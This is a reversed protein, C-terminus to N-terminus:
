DSPVSLWLSTKPVSATFTMREKKVPHELILVRAHLDINGDPNSRAAGYKLDGRIPFGIRALQCRIQHHRGTELAIELLEYREFRYRIKYSLAAKKADTVQADHAFSKNKQANRVLWHELRGENKQLGKPVLAWYTKAVNRQAFQENLRRLAKSTRAFVVVGSTPRDLRHVVGLFVNGPKNYKKKLYAKLHEVLPTDGTKDGQVLMGGPKNVVLIHNDEYCVDWQM